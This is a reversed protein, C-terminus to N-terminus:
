GSVADGDADDGSHVTHGTGHALYHHTQSDRQGGGQVSLERYQGPRDALEAAPRLGGPHVRFFEPGILAREHHPLAKQLLGLPLDGVSDDFLDEAGARRVDGLRIQLQDRLDGLRIRLPDEASKPLM